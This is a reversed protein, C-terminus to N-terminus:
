SNLFFRSLRNKWGSGTEQQFTQQTQMFGDYLADELIDFEEGKPVVKKVCRKLFVEESEDCRRASSAPTFYRDKGDVKFRITKM